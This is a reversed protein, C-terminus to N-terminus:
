PTASRTNPAAPLKRDIAPAPEENSASPNPMAACSCALPALALLAAAYFSRRPLRLAPFPM